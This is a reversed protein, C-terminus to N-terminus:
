KGLYEELTIGREYIETAAAVGVFRYHWSEYSYGTINAKDEPYRLIFGFKHANELLWTYASTEAFGKDYPNNPTESGYNWLGEMEDTILDVCLGTQHESTGPYASYTLVQAKIQDDTWSPHNAKEQEFYTNYLTQQYEYSRYASTIFVEYGHAAMEVILAEAARAAYGELYIEKGNRTYRSNILTLNKPVYDQGVVVSKNALVLYAEDTTNLISAVPAVDTKYTYDETSAATKGGNTNCGVLAGFLLVSSLVASIVPVIKIKM